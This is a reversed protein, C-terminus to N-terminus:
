SAPSELGWADAYYTYKYDDEGTLGTSTGIALTPASAPAALKVDFMDAGDSAQPTTVGDAIYLRNNAVAFNPVTGAKLTTGISTADNFWDTTYLANDSKYVNFLTGSSNSFSHMGLIRSFAKASFNDITFFKTVDHQDLWLM